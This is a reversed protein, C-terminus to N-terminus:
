GQNCYPHVIRRRRYLYRFFIIVFVFVVKMMAHEREENEREEDSLTVAVYQHNINELLWPVREDPQLNLFTLPKDGHAMLTLARIHLSRDIEGSDLMEYLIIVCKNITQAKSTNAMTRFSDAIDHLLMQYDEDITSLRARKNSSKTTRNESATPEPDQQGHASSPITSNNNLMQTFSVNEDVNLGFDNTHTIPTTPVPNTECDEFVVKMMANEREEDSLTVAVYQHNINQLLWPVREDPKLNLFTLPKNGHEMLTLARIHLSRDIERSNLMERLILACKNNTQARSTNTMTRFSDAIDHLLMRYDEDITSLRARKNSSKTTRSESATPQSNQQSHAPSPIISNNNLMQTFSVNEDVNLGFDNTHTIPTEPVPDAESDETMMHPTCNYSGRGTATSEGYVEHLEEYHKWNQGGKFKRRDPFKQIYVAWVENDVDVCKNTPDWGFGSTALIQKCINYDAKTSKLKNKIKETTFEQGFKEMMKQGIAKYAKGKLNGGSKMSPLRSQQVLLHILYELQADSWILSDNRSNSSCEMVVRRSAAAPSCRFSRNPQQQGRFLGQSRLPPPPQPAQSVPGLPCNKIQEPFKKGCELSLYKGSFSLYKGSFAFGLKVSM